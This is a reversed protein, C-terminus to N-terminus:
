LDGVLISLNAYEFLLSLNTPDSFLQEFVVQKKQETIELQDPDTISPAVNQSSTHLCLTTCTFIMLARFQM